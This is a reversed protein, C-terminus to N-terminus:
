SSFILESLAKLTIACCVSLQSDSPPSSPCITSPCSISACKWSCSCCPLHIPVTPWQLRSFSGATSNLSLPFRLLWAAPHASSMRMTICTGGNWEESSWKNKDMLHFGSCKGKTGFIWFSGFHKIKCGTYRFYLFYCLAWPHASCCLPLDQKKRVVSSSPSM